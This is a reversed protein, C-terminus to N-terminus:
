KSEKSDGSQDFDATSLTNALTKRASYREGDLM